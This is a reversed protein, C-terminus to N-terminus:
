WYKKFLIKTIEKFPYDALTAFEIYGLKQYFDAAQFAQTNVAATQAADPTKELPM